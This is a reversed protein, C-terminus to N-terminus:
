TLARVVENAVASSFLLGSHTTPMKKHEAGELTTECVAITGDNPKQLPGLMSGMGISRTGAIVTTRRNSPATAFQRSLSQEASGLLWRGLPKKALYGGALAGRVPTGLLVVRGPPFQQGTKDMKELMELVVLGGLSHAVLHINPANLALCECFLDEAAQELSRRRTSYSFRQTPYQARQLRKELVWVSPSGALFGHILVVPAM